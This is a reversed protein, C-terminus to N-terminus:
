IVLHKTSPLFTIVFRSLMNFLLSIVKGGFAQIILAINKGSTMYPSFQVMFFSSQAGFFQHRQMTTSSFVRSLGKSQLSILDTCGLSFWGQSYKPLVAAIASVGISQGGSAFLQSMPFSGSAPFFPLCFSFLAASSSITLYCWQSLPCSDSCVRSITFSLLSQHATTWPTSFLRVCSLLQVIM